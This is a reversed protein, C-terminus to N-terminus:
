CGPTLVILGLFPMCQRNVARNVGPMTGVARVVAQGEAASGVNVLFSEPMDRVEVLALIESDSRKARFNRYATAQDEFVVERVGPLSTLAQRVAEREESTVTRGLCPAYEVANCLFVVVPYRPSPSTFAMADVQGSRAGVAAAGFAVLGALALAGLAYGIRFRGRVRRHDVVRLPRLGAPEVSAGAASLADRLRDEMVSM